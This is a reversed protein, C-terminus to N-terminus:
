NYQNSSSWGSIRWKEKGTRVDEYPVHVIMNKVSKPPIITGDGEYDTEFIDSLNNNSDFSSVSMRWRTVHKDEDTGNQVNVLIDVSGDSNQWM